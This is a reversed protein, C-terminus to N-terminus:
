NELSTHKLYLTKNSLPEQRIIVQMETIKKQYHLFRYITNSLADRMTEHGYYNTLAVFSCIQKTSSLHALKTIALVNNRLPEIDQTVLLFGLYETSSAVWECKLPNVTFANRGFRLLLQNTTQIHAACADLSFIGIDNIFCEINDLNAFLPQVISQFFDPSNTFGMRLRKYQYLDYPTSIVYLKRSNSDIKFIYVGM